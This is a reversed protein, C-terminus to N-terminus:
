VGSHVVRWPAPGLPSRAPRACERLMEILPKIREEITPGRSSRQKKPLPPESCPPLDRPALSKYADLQALADLVGTTVPLDREWRPGKSRTQLYAVGRRVNIKQAVIPLLQSQATANHSLIPRLDQSNGASAQDQQLDQGSKM